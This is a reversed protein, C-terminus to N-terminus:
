VRLNPAAITLCLALGVILIKKMCVRSIYKHATSIIDQKKVQEMLDDSFYFYFHNVRCLELPTSSIM